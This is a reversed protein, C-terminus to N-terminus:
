SSRAASTFGVPEKTYTKSKPRHRRICLMKACNIVICPFCIYALAIPIWYFFQPYGHMEKLFKRIGVVRTLIQKEQMTM